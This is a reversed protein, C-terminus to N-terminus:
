PGKVPGEIRIAHVRDPSGPRDIRPMSIAGSQQALSPPTTSLSWGPELMGARLMVLAFVVSAEIKKFSANPEELAKALQGWTATGSEQQLAQAKEKVRPWVSRAAEELRVREEKVAGFLEVGSPYEMVRLKLKGLLLRSGEAAHDLNFPGIFDVKDRHVMSWDYEKAAEALDRRRAEHDGRKAKLDDVRARLEAIRSSAAEAARRALEVIDTRSASEAAALTAAASAYETSPPPPGAKRPSKRPEARRPPKADHARALQQAAKLLLEYVSASTEAKKVL